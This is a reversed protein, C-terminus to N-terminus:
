KLAYVAVISCDCKNKRKNHVDINADNDWSILKSDTSLSGSYWPLQM